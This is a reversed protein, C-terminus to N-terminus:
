TARGIKKESAMMMMENVGTKRSSACSPRINRGSAKVFVNAISPEVKSATVITGTSQVHSTRPGNDVLVTVRLPWGFREVSVVTSPGLNEKIAIDSAQVDLVPKGKGDVALLYIASAEQGYMAACMTVLGAVLTAARVLLWRRRVLGQMM